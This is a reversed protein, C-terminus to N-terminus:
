GNALLYSGNVLLGLDLVLLNGPGLMSKKLDLLPHRCGRVCQSPHMPFPVLCRSRDTEIQIEGLM